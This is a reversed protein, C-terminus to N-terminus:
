QVEIIVGGLLSRATLQSVCVSAPQSLVGELGPPGGSLDVEEWFAKPQHKHDRHQQRTYSRQLRVDCLWQGSHFSIFVSCIDRHPAAYLVM